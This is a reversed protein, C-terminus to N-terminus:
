KTTMTIVGDWNPPPPTVLYREIASLYLATTRDSPWPVLVELFAEKAEAFARQEWFVLGREFAIIAQSDTASPTGMARLEFIRVPEKRGKVRVAGLRRAVVQDKVARWTSESIVIRTEYEKNTGELRSGLNVADGLVTYDVRVDSGMNGVVMAGSNVGIGIELDPLGAAKWTKKLEDLRELMTVAARCGRLAHDPQDVPANWFAMVADGIYKDLTGKEDFVIKTMPTLYENMFTMLKEPAMHESLSTFGRIDSFLVTMERKEGRNLKEPDALAVDMVDEGLYRSFTNRMKLKERDVTLYGMFILAFSTIVLDLTPVVWALSVGLRFAVACTVTWGAIVGIVLGMKYRFALRPLALALLLGFVLMLAMELPRTYGPRDLFQQNLINSALAAHTIVGPTMEQFPTVRQDGSSGVITVGVLVAKGAVAARFAPTNEFADIASVQAFSSLKGPYNILTFAVEDQFPVRTVSGDTARLRVAVLDEPGDPEPEITADLESAAVRLGLSPFLGPPRTLKVLSSARRITGDIDPTTGFHGFLSGVKAFRPLPTQVTVISYAKLTDIPLDLHFGKVAGPVQTIVQETVDGQFRELVAQSYSGVDTQSVPIVGQVIRPGGKQFVAQLAADPDHAVKQALSKELPELAAPITTAHLAELVEKATHDAQAEDTFSIDLGVVKVGADLLHDLITAVVDRPWPWLGWRQAGQEDLSLIVVRPDPAREGRSRFMLDTFRGEFSQVFRHVLSHDNSISLGAIPASTKWHLASFAVAIALAVM